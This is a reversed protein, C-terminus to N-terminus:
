VAMGHQLAGRAFFFSRSRADAAIKITLRHFQPTLGKVVRFRRGYKALTNKLPSIFIGPGDEM